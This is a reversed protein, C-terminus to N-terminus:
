VLGLHKATAEDLVLHTKNKTRGVKVKCNAGIKGEVKIFANTGTDRWFSFKSENISYSLKSDGALDLVRLLPFKLSSDIYTDVREGDVSVVHSTVAETTPAEEPPAEEPPPAEDVPPEEVPEEVPADVPEENSEEDSGGDVMGIAMHLLNAATAEVVEVEHGADKLAKEGASVDEDKPAFIVVQAM